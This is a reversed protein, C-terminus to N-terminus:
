NVLNSCNEAFHYYFWLNVFYFNKPPLFFFTCLRPFFKIPDAVGYCWWLQLREEQDTEGWIHLQPSLLLKTTCRLHNKAAGNNLQPRRNQCSNHSRRFDSWNEGYLIGLMSLTDGLRQLECVSRLFYFEAHLLWLKQGSFSQCTFTEVNNNWLKIKARYVCM